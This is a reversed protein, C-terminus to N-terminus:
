MPCSTKTKWVHSQVTCYSVMLPLKMLLIHPLQPRQQCNRFECCRWRRCADACHTVFSWMLLLYLDRSCKPMVREILDYWFSLRGCKFVFVDTYFLRGQHFWGGLFFFSVCQKQSQLGRTKGRKCRNVAKQLVLM